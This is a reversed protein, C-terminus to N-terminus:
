AAVTLQRISRGRNYMQRYIATCKKFRKFLAETEAENQYVKWFGCCRFNRGKNQIYGFVDGLPYGLFVGIEHPFSDTDNIRTCLTQLAGAISLDKYGYAQLFSVVGPKKLDAELRQPRFVYVLASHSRRRLIVISLGKASLQEREIDLQKELDLNDSTTYNFLNATKLGALTPSCHEILYTELM